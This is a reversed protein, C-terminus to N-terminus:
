VNSRVSHWGCRGLEPDTNDRTFMNLAPHFAAENLEVVALPCRELAQVGAIAQGHVRWAGRVGVALRQLLEGGNANHGGTLDILDFHGCVELRVPDIYREELGVFGRDFRQDLAQREDLAFLVPAACETEPIDFNRRLVESENGLCHPNFGRERLIRELGEMSPVDLM